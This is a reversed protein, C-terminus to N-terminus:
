NPDSQKRLDNRWPQGVPRWSSSFFKRGKQVKKPVMPRRLHEVANVQQRQLVALEPDDPEQARVAVVLLQLAVDDLGDDDTLSAGINELKDRNGIKKRKDKGDTEVQGM